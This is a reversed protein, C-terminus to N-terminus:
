NSSLAVGFFAGISKKIEHNEKIGFFSVVADAVGGLESAVELDVTFDKINKAIDKMTEAFAQEYAFGFNYKGTKESYRFTLVEDGEKWNPPKYYHRFGNIPKRRKLMQSDINGLKKKFTKMFKVSDFSVQENTANEASDSM